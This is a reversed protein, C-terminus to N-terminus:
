IRSRPKLLRDSLECEAAWDLANEIQNPDINYGSVRGGTLTAIYRAIRGRRVSCSQAPYVVAM